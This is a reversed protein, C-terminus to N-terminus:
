PCPLILLSGLPTREVSAQPDIVVTTVPSEIVAPGTLREGPLLTEFYRVVTDVLGVKPFYAQRIGNKTPRNDTEVPKGIEGERLRCSVRARWRLMEVSSGPDNTTFVEKHVRHFDQRLQEVDESSSFISQRLPIDLEWIESPYRIESYLEIKSYVSGAGPGDIFERCQRQLSALVTNVGAFDFKISSTVLTATYEATLDSLLAGYASLAAGTEPIVLRPCGLRRAISVSNLGAAGGGGILVAERPDVGQNVSIEEILQVMNETVLQMIAAAAEYVNLSLPQGIQEDIAKMATEFDLQMAGGLFFDPDLYGLVLCADTV